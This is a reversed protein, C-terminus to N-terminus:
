YSFVTAGLEASVETVYSVVGCIGFNETGRQRFFRAAKVSNISSNVYIGTHRSDFVFVM